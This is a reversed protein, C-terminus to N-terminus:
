VAHEWDGGKKVRARLISDKYSEGRDRVGERGQSTRNKQWSREGDEQVSGKGKRHFRTRNDSSKSEHGAGREAKM